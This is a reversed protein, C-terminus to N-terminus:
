RNCNAAYDDVTPSAGDGYSEVNLGVDGKKYTYTCSALGTEACTDAEIIGSERLSQLFGQPYNPILPRGQIPTWGAAILESRVKDISKGYINPVVAKGGCIVEETAIPVVDIVGDATLTIDGIPEPAPGGDFIRLRDGALSITGITETSTKPAYVLAVLQSGRFLAVNGEDMECLGGALWGFDGAFSVAEYPGFKVESIVGWGQSEVIKGGDSDQESSAGCQDRSSASAPAKPLKTLLTIALGPVHSHVIPVTGQTSQAFAPVITTMLAAALLYRSLSSIHFLV